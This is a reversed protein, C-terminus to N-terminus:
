HDKLFNSFELLHDTNIIDVGNAMLIEWALPHDPIAWLRLRKGERHAQDSLEKIRAMKEPSTPERGDWDCWNSYRDSIIPMVAPTYSKGLDGPRGDLILLPDRKEWAKAPRNGSIFVTVPCAESSCQLRPYKILLQRLAEWTADPDSKIDIMLFFKVPKTQKESFISQPHIRLLSDLPQLYLKELLPSQSSVSEHSVRVLGDKLHVDAEVEAFGYALADLLPRDHEYDNHAHGKRHGQQALISFSNSILILAVVAKMCM